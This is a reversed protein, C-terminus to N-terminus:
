PTKEEDAMAALLHRYIEGLTVIQERTLHSLFHRRASDVHAPAAQHVADFGKDTLVAVAGRSDDVDPERAILGQREMRGIQHSTRSRSWHLAEALDSMRLRRGPIESLTALVHYEAFTLGSDVNLDRGIRNTLVGNFQLHGRWARSEDDDLWRADDM